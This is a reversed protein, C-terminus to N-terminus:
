IRVEKEKCVQLPGADVQADDDADLARADMSPQSNVDGLDLRQVQVAPVSSHHIEHLQLSVCLGVAIILARKFLSQKCIDDFFRRWGRALLNATGM